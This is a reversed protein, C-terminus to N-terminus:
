SCVSKVIKDYTSSKGRGVAGLLIYQIENTGEDKKLNKIFSPVTAHSGNVLLMPKPSGYAFQGGALADPFSKDSGDAILVGVQTRNDLNEKIDSRNLFYQAIKQSTEYRNKGGLRTAKPAVSSKVAATSGLVIVNPFYNILKQTSASAKGDKVLLIPYHYFYSWPSVSLADAPSQGTAVIVTGIKQAGKKILDEDTLSPDYGLDWAEARCLNKCVEEATKYRNKGALELVFADEDKVNTCISLATKKAKEQGAGVFCLYEITNKHKKLFNVASDDLGSGKSKTLILADGWYGAYANAALADPFKEGTVFVVEEFESGANKFVLDSILASTKYRNKGAFTYFNRIKFNVTKTGTYSGKGTFVIKGSNNPKGGTYVIQTTYDTNQILGKGNLSIKWEYTITTGQKGDSYQTENNVLEIKYFKKIGTVTANAISQAGNLASDDEEENLEEEPSAEEAVAEDIIEYEEIAGEPIEGEAYDGEVWEIDGSDLIVDAAPEAERAEREPAAAEDVAEPVEAGPIEATDAPVEAADVSEVPADAAEDAFVPLAYLGAALCVTLLLCMAKRKM